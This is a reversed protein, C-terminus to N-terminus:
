CQWKTAEMTLQWGHGREEAQRNVGEMPSGGLVKVWQAAEEEAQRAGWDQNRRRYAARICAKALSTQHPGRKGRTGVCGKAAESPEEIGRAEHGARAAVAWGPRAVVRRRIEEMAVVPARKGEPRKLRDRTANLWEELRATEERRKTDRPGEAGHSRRPKDGEQSQGVTTCSGQNGQLWATPSQM